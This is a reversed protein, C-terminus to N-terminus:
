PSLRLQRLPKLMLPLNSIVAYFVLLSYLASFPFIVVRPTSMLDQLKSSNPKCNRINKSKVLVSRGTLKAPLGKCGRATSPPESVTEFAVQLHPLGLLSLLIGWQQLRLTQHQSLLNRQWLFCNGKHNPSSLFHRPSTVQDRSRSCLQRPSHIM